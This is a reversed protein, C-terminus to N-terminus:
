YPAAPPEQSGNALHSRRATRICAYKRLMIQSRRSEHLIREHFSWPDTDREHDNSDRCGGEDNSAVDDTACRLALQAVRNERLKLWNSQSVTCELAKAAGIIAAVQHALIQDFREICSVRVTNPWVVVP